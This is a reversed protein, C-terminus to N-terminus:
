TMEPGTLLKSFKILLSIILPNNLRETNQTITFECKRVLQPLYDNVFSRSVTIGNLYENIDNTASIINTYDAIEYLISSSVNNIGQVINEVVKVARDHDQPDKSEMLKQSDELVETDSEGIKSSITEVSKNFNKKNKAEEEEKASRYQMLLGKIKRVTTRANAVGAIRMAKATSRIDRNNIINRKQQGINLADIIDDIGEIYKAVFTGFTKNASNLIFNSTLNTKFVIYLAKLNREFQNQPTGSTLMPGYKAVTALDNAMYKCVTSIGKLFDDTSTNKPFAPTVGVLIPNHMLINQVIYDFDNQSRSFTHRGSLEKKHDLYYQALSGFATYISNNTLDAAAPNVAGKISRIQSVFQFIPAFSAYNVPVIGYVKKTEDQEEPTIDQITFVADLHNQKLSDQLRKKGESGSASLEKVKDNSIEKLVAESSMLANFIPSIRKQVDQYDQQIKDM